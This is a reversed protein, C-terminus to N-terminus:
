HQCLALKEKASARVQEPDPSGYVPRKVAERPDPLAATGAKVAEAVKFYAERFPMGRMSLAEAADSSTTPYTSADRYAKACNFKMGDLFSRFVELGEEATKFVRWLHRTAEQLDLSYGYGIKEQVSLLALADAIAESIRARLVELTVPNRKHPMISSTSIHEAPPEVYGVLPSAWAIFDDVFRSLEALASAVVSAALGAFFRSSSAYLTNEAVSGFGALAALRKRDLPASTGGSPGSGLPSKDAVPRIAALASDFDALLEYLALLYHGFTIPQAPQFHTFSPMVCDAYELARRAASCMLGRAVSRLADIHRLLRLRIAAAVHDNRSRGLGVWGGAPGARGILYDELAEHVDEYGQRLLDEARVEGLAKLVAEGDAKPIVGKEVLHSVHARMVAVVEEAIEADDQISSTYGAVLRGSGGIWRRYLAM